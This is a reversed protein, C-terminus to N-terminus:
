RGINGSDHSLGRMTWSASSVAFGLRNTTGRRSSVATLDADSLAHHRLLEREDVEPPASFRARQADSLLERTPM